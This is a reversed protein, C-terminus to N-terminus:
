VRGDFIDLTRDCRHEPTFERCPKFVDDVSYNEMWYFCGEGESKATDQPCTPEPKDTKM